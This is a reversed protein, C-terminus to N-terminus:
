NNKQRKIRLLELTKASAEDFFGNGFNRNFSGDQQYMLSFPQETNVNPFYYVNFPNENPTIEFENEAVIVQSRRLIYESHTEIILRIKFKTHVELFLDALKSQFAPHLNSEPEEVLVSINKGPYNRVNEIIDGFMLLIYVIQIVGKGEDALPFKQNNKFLNFEYAEGVHDVIEFDEGIRFEAMWKRIFEYSVTGSEIKWEHLNFIIKALNDEPNYKHYLLHKAPSASGIYNVEMKSTETLFGTISNSIEKSNELIAMITALDKRTQKGRQAKLVEYSNQAKISQLFDIIINNLNTIKGYDQEYEFDQQNLGGSNKLIIERKEKLSDLKGILNFYEIDKKKSDYIELSKINEDISHDIIKITEENESNEIKQAKKTIKVTKEFLNFYFTINRNFDSIILSKGTGAHDDFDGTIEISCQFNAVVFELYITRDTAFKNVTRGFSAKILNNDNIDEEDFFIFAPLTKWDIDHTLWIAKTVSSKGSNNPGVLFTIGKNEIGNLNTLRRFNRIFIKDM